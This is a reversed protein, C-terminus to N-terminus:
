RGFSYLSRLTLIFTDGEDKYSECLVGACALSVQTNPPQLSLPFITPQASPFFLLYSLCRPRLLYTGVAM